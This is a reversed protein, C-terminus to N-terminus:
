RTLAGEGPTTGRVITIGCNHLYKCLCMAWFSSRRNEHFKQLMTGFLMLTPANVIFCSKKRNKKLYDGSPLQPFVLLSIALSHCILLSGSSTSTLIIQCCNLRVLRSACWDVVGVLLCLRHRVKASCMLSLLPGRVILPISVRLFKGTESFISISLRQTLKMLEWKVTSWSKGSPVLDIVPRGLYLRRSLALIVGANTVCGLRIRTTCVSSRPQHLHENLVEVPNDASWINQSPLDQIAGYVTNWNVQHKLFVKRSVHLTQVAQVMSIVAPLSSHDSNGICEAVRVGPSPLNRASYSLWLPTM